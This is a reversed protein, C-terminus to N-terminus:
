LEERLVQAKRHLDNFFQAEDLLAPILKDLLRRAQIKEDTTMGKPFGQKELYHILDIWSQVDTEVRSTFQIDKMTLDHQATEFRELQEHMKRLDRLVNELKRKDADGRARQLQQEVRSVSNKLKIRARNLAINGFIRGFLLSESWKRSLVM